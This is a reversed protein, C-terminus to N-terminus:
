SNKIQKVQQEVPHITMTTEPSGRTLSDLMKKTEIIDTEVSCEINISEEDSKIQNLTDLKIKLFPIKESELLDKYEKMKKESIENCLMRVLLNM